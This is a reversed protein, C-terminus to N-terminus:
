RRIPQAPEYGRDGVVPCLQTGDRHSFGPRVGEHLQQATLDRPTRKVADEGCEPCIWAM